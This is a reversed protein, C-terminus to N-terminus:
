RAEMYGCLVRYQVTCMCVCVHVGKATGMRFLGKFIDLHILGESSNGGQACSRAYICVYMVQLLFM